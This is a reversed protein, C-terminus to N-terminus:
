HWHCGTSPGTLVSDFVGNSNGMHAASVLLTEPEKSSLLIPLLAVLVHILVRVNSPLSKLVCWKDM